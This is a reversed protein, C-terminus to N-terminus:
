QEEYGLRSIASSIQNGSILWAFKPIVLYLRHLPFGFLAHSVFLRFPVLSQPNIFSEIEIEVGCNFLNMLGCDAIGNGM